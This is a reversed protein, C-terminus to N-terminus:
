GRRECDTIVSICFTYPYYNKAFYKFNFIFKLFAAFFRSFAKQKKPLQMQIPQWTRVKPLFCRDNQTLTNVFHRLIDCIVLLSM